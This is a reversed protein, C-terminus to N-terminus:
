RNACMTHPPPNSEGHPKNSKALHITTYAVVPKAANADM